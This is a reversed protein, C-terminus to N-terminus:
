QLPASVTRSAPLVSSPPCTEVFWAMREPPCPYVRLTSISPECGSQLATTLKTAISYPQFIKVTFQDAKIVALNFVWWHKKSAYTRMAIGYQDPLDLGALIRAFGM